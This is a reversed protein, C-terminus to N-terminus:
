DNNKELEKRKVAAASVGYISSSCIIMPVAVDWGIQKTLLGVVALVQGFLWTLFPKSIFKSMNSSSDKQPLKSLKDKLENREKVINKIASIIDVDKKIDAVDRIKEKFENCEEKLRNIEESNDERTLLNDIERFIAERPDDVKLDLKEKLQAELNKIDENAKKTLEAKVKALEDQYEDKSILEGNQIQDRWKTYDRLIVEVAEVPPDGNEPDFGYKKFIDSYKNSMSKEEEWIVKYNIGFTIPKNRDRPYMPDLFGFNKSRDNKYMRVGNKNTICFNFHLHKGTANGTAGMIGILDGAKVRQGVKVFNKKLHCYYTACLQKDDWLVVYDGYTRSAYDIDKVVVGNHVARIEPNPDSIKGFDVGEHGLLGYKKYVEPHEMYGQTVYFDKFQDILKFTKM